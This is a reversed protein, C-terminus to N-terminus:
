DFICQNYGLTHASLGLSVGSFSDWELTLYVASCRPSPHCRTQLGRETSPGWRAQVNVPGSCAAAVTKMNMHVDTRNYRSSKTERHRSSLETKLWGDSRVRFNKRGWKCMDRIRSPLLNNFVDWKPSLVRLDRTEQVNELQPDRHGIGNVTLIKELTPQTTNIWSYLMIGNAIM